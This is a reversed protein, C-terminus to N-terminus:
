LAAAMAIAFNQLNIIEVDLEEETVFLYNVEDFMLSSVFKPAVSFGAPFRDYTYYFYIRLDGWTANPIANLTISDATHATVAIKTSFWRTTGSYAFSEPDAKRVIVASSNLVLLPDFTIGSGNENATLTVSTTGITGVTFDQYGWGRFYSIIKRINNYNGGTPM